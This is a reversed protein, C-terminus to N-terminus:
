TSTKTMKITMMKEYQDIRADQEDKAKIIEQVKEMDAKLAAHIKEMDAKLTNNVEQLEKVRQDSDLDHWDNNAPTPETKKEEAKDIYQESAVVDEVVATDAPM